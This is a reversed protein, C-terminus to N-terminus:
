KKLVRISGVNVGRNNVIYYDVLPNKIHNIVKELSENAPNTDFDKYKELLPMFSKIQMKYITDADKLEAKTLSINNM